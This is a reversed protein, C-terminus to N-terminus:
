VTCTCRGRFCIPSACTLSARRGELCVDYSAFTEVAQRRARGFRRRRTRCKPAWRSRRNRRFPIKLPCRGFSQGPFCRVGRSLFRCSQRCKTQSGPRGGDPCIGSRRNRILRCARKDNLISGSNVYCELVSGCRACDAKLCKREGKMPPSSSVSPSPSTTPENPKPPSISPAMSSAPSSPPTVSPSPSVSPSSDVCMSQVIDFISRPLTSFTSVPTFLETKSAIEMLADSDVGRGVGVTAITIGMEKIGPAVDVGQPTGPLDEGDAILLIVRPNPASTLLSRCRGLGRGSSTGGGFQTNDRLSTKFADVDMTLPSITEALTEFGVASFSSNPALVSFDETIALLAETMQTFEMNSLSRSEDIAYCLSTHSCESAASVECCILLATTTWFFVTSCRGLGSRIM